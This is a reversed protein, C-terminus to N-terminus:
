RITIPAAFFDIHGVRLSSRGAAIENRRFTLWDVIDALPLNGTERAAAAWGSFIETQIERDSPEFIWDAPGRVVSYGVSEFRRVVVHAARPGLAQGFGKDRRQHANVAQIIAEDHSHAPEMEARGDYTLAAYIPISRAAIEVVLRELWTESVLDLLASTTVLDVPGDLAAELDHNLDIPATTFSVDVPPTIASARALLSLNNDVLQWHQTRSIRPAVERMTSGTGCALDVIRLANTDATSATVAELVLPNRAAKDYPERLALWDASFSM